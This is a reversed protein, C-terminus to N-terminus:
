LDIDVSNVCEFGVLRAIEDWMEDPADEELVHWVPYDYRLMVEAVENRAIQAIACSGTATEGEVTILTAESDKAIRELKARFDAIKANVQRVADSVTDEAPKQGGTHEETMCNREYIQNSDKGAVAERAARRKCVGLGRGM